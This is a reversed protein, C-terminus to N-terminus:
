QWLYGASGDSMSGSADSWFAGTAKETDSAASYDPAANDMWNAFRGTLDFAQADIQYTQGAIIESRSTIQWRTPLARGESDVVVRSTIDVADAVGLTADKASIRVSLMRPINKYRLLTRSIVQYAQAETLVWRALVELTKAEGGAEPQEADSEIVGSVVNFNSRDNRTHNIVGYYVLVRTLRSDPAMSLTASDALIGTDDDLTTVAGVPPRVAQMKVLQAYEDWWVSFCGQQCVEGMLDKVATPKTLFLTCRGTSLYTATEDDWGTGDIKATGVPTWEELLYKGADAILARDFHGVRGVAAGASAAAATTGGLGRVMGTLTYVGPSVVSYGAYGIIESGILIHRDTTLGIIGSVQDESQGVITASTDTDTIDAQLSMAYAPPFLSTKDDALMLPDVGNLTVKGNSPGTIGNRVYLRQRMAGLPDVEYGDYIVLEMNAFLANRALFTTWFTRTPLNSRDAKYFDGVQDGWVFDDMNVNCTAHIGFPSKGELIGATNLQSKSTSISLGNVPIANTEPNDADSFDGVAYLGPRNSVFRWAISGSGDYASHATCTAWTNYCRATASGWAGTVAAGETKKYDSAGAGGEVQVGFLHLGSAGDGLYSVAGNYLFLRLECSTSAAAITTMSIRMWGSTLVQVSASAGGSTSTVTKAAVNIIADQSSAFAAGSPIRVLIDRTGSAAKVLLSVTVVVGNTIAIGTQNIRHQATASNEILDDALHTATGPVAVTNASVSSNTKTWTADDLAESWLAANTRSGNAIAAPCPFVGFRLSCRPQRLEVIQLPRKM